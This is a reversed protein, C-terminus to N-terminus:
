SVLQKLLDKSIDDCRRKTTNDSLPIERVKSVAKKGTHLIDAAIELCPLGVYELETYPRQRKVEIYVIKLFAVVLDTNEGKIENQLLYVQKQKNHLSAEFFAKSKNQYNPHHTKLHKQLHSPGSNSNRFTAPCFLNCASSYPNLMETETCYFGYM